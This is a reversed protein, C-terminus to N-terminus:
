SSSIQELPNLWWTHSFGSLTSYWKFQSYGNLKQAPFTSPVM